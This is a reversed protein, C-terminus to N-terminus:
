PGTQRSIEEERMMEVIRGKRIILGREGDERRRRLEERLKRNEEREKITLDPVIMIRRYEEGANRLSKADGVVAASGM